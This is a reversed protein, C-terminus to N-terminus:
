LPGNVGRPLTLQVPCRSRPVLLTLVLRVVWAMLTYRLYPCLSLVRCVVEVMPALPVRLTVVPLASVDLLGRFGLTLHRFLRLMPGLHTLWLSPGLVGLTGM